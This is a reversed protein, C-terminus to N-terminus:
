VVNEIMESTLRAAEGDVEQTKVPLGPLDSAFWLIRITVSDDVEYRLCDLDGLPTGLPERSITTQHTPFSAHAQLEDWTARFQSAEGIPRGGADVAQIALMAGEEDCATFTTTRYTNEGKPDVYRITVRRGEPCGTRIEKATFPAPADGQAVVRPDNDM